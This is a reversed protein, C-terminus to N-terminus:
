ERLNKTAMEAEEVGVYKNGKKLLDCILKPLNKSLSMKFPQNRMGNMLATALTSMKLDKLGLTVRSFWALYEEDKEQIAQMLRIAIKRERKSNLFYTIFSM